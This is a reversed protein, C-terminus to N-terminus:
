EMLKIINKIVKEKERYLVEEILELLKNIVKKHLSSYRNLLYEIFEHKLTRVAEVPDNEYIYIVKDRIEGSKENFKDPIWLVELDLGEKVKSKLKLLTKDLIKQLDLGKDPKSM